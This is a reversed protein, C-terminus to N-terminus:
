AQGRFFVLTTARGFVEVILVVIFLRGNAGHERTNAAKITPM